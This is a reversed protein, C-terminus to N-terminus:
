AFDADVYCNDEFDSTPSFIIGKDSTGKLYRIIHKVAVAHMQKPCHSYRACQHVAFTIDRLTNGSLYLLMGILTSYKWKENFNEGDRDSGVTTKGTPTAVANCDTMETTKLIKDVLGTQTLYFSGNSRQEIRIGLFDGVEGENRLQFSHRQELNNVGLGRIEHEPWM